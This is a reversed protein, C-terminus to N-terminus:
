YLFIYEFQVSANHFSDVTGLLLRYFAITVAIRVSTTGRMSTFPSLKANNSLLLLLQRCVRSM